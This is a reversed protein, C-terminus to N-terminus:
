LPGEKGDNDTNSTIYIISCKSLFTCFTRSVIRYVNQSCLNVIFSLIQAYGFSFWRTHCFTLAVCHFICCHIGLAHHVPVARQSGHQDYLSQQDAYKGTQDCRQVAIQEVARIVNAVRRNAKAAAARQAHQAPEARQSDHCHHHRQQEFPFRHNGARANRLHFRLQHTINARAPPTHNQAFDRRAKHTNQATQRQASFARRYLEAAHRALADRASELPKPQLLMKENGAACRGSKGRREIRREGTDHERQLFNMLIERRHHQQRTHRRREHRIINGAAQKAHLRHKRKLKGTHNRQAAIRVNQNQAHQAAHEARHVIRTHEACLRQIFLQVKQRLHAPNENRKQNGTHEAKDHRLQEAATMVHHGHQIDFIRLKTQEDRNDNYFEQKGGGAKARGCRAARQHRQKHEAGKDAAGVATGNHIPETKVAIKRGIKHNNRHRCKKRRNDARRHGADHQNGLQGAAKRM